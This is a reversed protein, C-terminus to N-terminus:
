VLQSLFTKMPVIIPKKYSFCNKDVYPLDFALQFAYPAQIQSQFRYLNDNMSHKAITTKGIERPSSLFAMQEYHVIHHAIVSEYFRKMNVIGISM